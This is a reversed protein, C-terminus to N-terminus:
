GTLDSVRRGNSSDVEMKSADVPHGYNELEFPQSRAGIRPIYAGGRGTSTVSATNWKDAHAKHRDVSDKLWHKMDRVRDRPLSLEEGKSTKSITRNRQVDGNLSELLSSVTNVRDSIEARKKSNLQADELKKLEQMKSEILQKKLENVKNMPINISEVTRRAKLPTNIKERVKRQMEQVHKRAPINAQGTGNRKFQKQQFNAIKKQADTVSLNPSKSVCALTPENSITALPRPPAKLTRM